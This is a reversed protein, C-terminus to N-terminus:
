DNIGIKFKIFKVLKKFKFIYRNVYECYPVFMLSFKGFRQKYFSKRVWFQDGSISATTDITKVFGADKMRREVESKLPQNKYLAVCEVELWICKIKKLINEAGQLVMLEAGQVDMHIFDVESINNESCFFDITITEVKIRQEFKLWPHTNLTEGPPLISSSKNGFNADKPANSPNGSSVFFETSGIKNSLCLQVPTINVLGSESINKNILEFNSPLPEFCYVNSKPFLKGYIISDSGDCAGIDFIISKDNKSLYKSLEKLHSGM